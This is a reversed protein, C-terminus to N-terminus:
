YSSSTEITIITKIIQRLFFPLFSFFTCLVKRAPSSSKNAILLPSSSFAVEGEEVFERTRKTATSPSVHPVVGAATTATTVASAASIVVDLRQVTEGCEDSVHVIYKGLPLNSMLIGNNTLGVVFKTMGSSSM